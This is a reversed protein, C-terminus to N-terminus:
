IESGLRRRQTCLRKQAIAYLFPEFTPPALAVGASFFHVVGLSVSSINDTTIGNVDDLFGIAGSSVDAVFGDTFIRPSFVADGPIGPLYTRPKGGRYSTELGWSVVCSVQAGAPDGGGSGSNSVVSAAAVSGTDTFYEVDVRETVCASSLLGLLRTIWAGHVDNALDFLDAPLPVGTVLLWYGVAWHTEDYHGSIRVRATGAPARNPSPESTIPVPRSSVDRAHRWSRQSHM